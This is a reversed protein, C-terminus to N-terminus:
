KAYGTIFDYKTVQKILPTITKLHAENAKLPETDQALHQQRSSKAEYIDVYVATM